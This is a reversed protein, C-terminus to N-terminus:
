SSVVQNSKFNLYRM